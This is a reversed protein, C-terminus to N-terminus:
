EASELVARYPEPMCLIDLSVLQLSDLYRVSCGSHLTLDPNDVLADLYTVYQKAQDFYEKREVELAVRRPFDDFFKFHLLAGTM